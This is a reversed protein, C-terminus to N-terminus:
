SAGELARMCAELGRTVQWPTAPLFAVRSDYGLAAWTAHRLEHDSAAIARAQIDLIAARTV